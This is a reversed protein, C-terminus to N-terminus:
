EAGRHMGSGPGGVGYVKANIGRLHDPVPKTKVKIERRQRIPPHEWNEGIFRPSRTLIQGDSLIPCVSIADRIGPKAATKERGALVIQNVYVEERDHLVIAGSM